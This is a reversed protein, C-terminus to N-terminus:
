HSRKSDLARPTVAQDANARRGAAPPPAITQTGLTHPTEPLAAPGPPASDRWCRYHHVCQEGPGHIYSFVMAGLAVTLVVWVLSLLFPVSLLGVSLSRVAQRGTKANEGIDYPESIPRGIIPPYPGAQEREAATGQIRLHLWYASVNVQRYAAILGPLVLWPSLIGVVCATLLLCFLSIMVAPQGDVKPLGGLSFTTAAFLFGQLTLLGTFRHNALNNELDIMKIAKEWDSKTQADDLMSDGSQRNVAM